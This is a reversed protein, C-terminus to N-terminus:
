WGTPTNSFPLTNVRVHLREKFTRIYSDIEPAHEDWSTINLIIGMHEIHKRIHEFQGNGLIHYGNIVQKLSYCDNDSEWKKHAGGNWFTHGKINDHHIPNWKYVFYWCSVNGHRKVLEKPLEDCTNLAVCSPTRRTTKCNLLGLNHRLIDEAWLIDAKTVQCSPLM